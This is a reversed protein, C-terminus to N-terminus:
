LGDKSEKLVIDPFMLGFSGQPPGAADKAATWDSVQRTVVPLPGHNGAVWTRM